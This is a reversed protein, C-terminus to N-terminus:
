ARSEETKQMLRDRLGDNQIQLDTVMDRQRATEANGTAVGAVFGAFVALICTIVSLTIYFTTM